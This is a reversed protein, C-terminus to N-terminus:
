CRAGSDPGNGVILERYRSRKGNMGIALTAMIDISGGDQLNNRAAVEQGCRDLHSPNMRRIIRKHAHKLMLRFVKILSIMKAFTNARYGTTM